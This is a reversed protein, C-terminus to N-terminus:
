VGKRLIQKLEEAEPVYGWIAKCLLQFVMDKLSLPVCYELLACISNNYEEHTKM